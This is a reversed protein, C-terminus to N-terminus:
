ESIFYENWWFFSALVLLFAVEAMNANKLLSLSFSNSYSNELLFMRQCLCKTCETGREWWRGFKSLGSISHLRINEKATNKLVESFWCFCCSKLSACRLELCFNNRTFTFLCRSLTIFKNFMQTKYKIFYNRKRKRERAKSSPKM